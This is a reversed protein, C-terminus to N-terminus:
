KRLHALIKGPFHPTARVVEMIMRPSMESPVTARVYARPHVLDTPWSQAAAAAKAFDALRTKKVFAFANQVYWWAVQPDGWIQHRLCDLAVFGHSAFKPLWYSPWQENVHHTGGQGPVAASFVIVDGLRCLDAVFSDARSADLHEAVELCNVLDFTRDLSLPQALDRRLFREAPILLQDTQVIQGDIGLVECHNEGYVKAWTGSGCGVDVVTKPAFLSVILPVVARASGLSDEKLGEYYRTSYASM